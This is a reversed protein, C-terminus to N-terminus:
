CPGVFASCSGVMGDWSLPLPPRTKEPSSANWSINTAKIRRRRSRSWFFAAFSTLLRDKLTAVTWVNSESEAFTPKNVFHFAPAPVAFPCFNDQPNM